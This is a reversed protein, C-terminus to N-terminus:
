PPGLWGAAYCPDPGCPDIIQGSPKLFEAIQHRILASTDIVTDHPDVGFSDDPATNTIPAPDTGLVGGLGDDRKPGIDWVFMGNGDAAPGTLDGLNPIEPFFNVFGPTRGPDLTPSRLPAGITRAEVETAINSVQHDGYSMDILVHHAPTGPLPNSTMHNAYGDPEGRDWMMQIMALLLPRSPQDPYSPYLIASYDAFDVSRTLLTSYNMGPVYLVTRTIDPEVATLAGGAIGGQSNGYYYLGSGHDIVSQGGFQFAPDSSFGDSKMLLRGLYIFNLFGQQLGDPIPQFHSLDALATIATGIDDEMMGTFDTACTLVGEDNGLQRVNTTHVETYDGFLGHGYM